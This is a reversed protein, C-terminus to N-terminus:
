TTTEIEWSAWAFIAQLGLLLQADVSNINIAIVKDNCYIKVGSKDNFTIKILSETKFRSAYVIKDAVIKANKIRREPSPHYEWDDEELMIELVKARIDKAEYFKNFREVEKEQAKM